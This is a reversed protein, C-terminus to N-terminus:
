ANKIHDINPIRSTEVKLLAFLSIVGVSVVLRTESRERLRSM